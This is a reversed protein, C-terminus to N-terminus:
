QPNFDFSQMKTRTKPSMDEFRLIELEQYSGIKNDLDENYEHFSNNSFPLSPEGSM